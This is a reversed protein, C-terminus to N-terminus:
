LVSVDWWGACFFAVENQQADHGAVVINDESSLFWLFKEFWLPKRTPRIKVNEDHPTPSFTKKAVSQLAKQVPKPQHPSVFFSWFLERWKRSMKQERKREKEGKRM